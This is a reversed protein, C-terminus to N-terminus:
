IFTPQVINMIVFEHLSINHVNGEISIPELGVAKSLHDDAHIKDKAMISKNYFEIAKDYQQQNRYVNGLNNYVVATNPHDPKLVKDM